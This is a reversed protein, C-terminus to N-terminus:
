GHGLDDVFKARSEIESLKLTASAAASRLIPEQQEQPLKAVSELTHGRSRLYEAILSRELAAHMEEMPREARHTNDTMAGEWETVAATLGM